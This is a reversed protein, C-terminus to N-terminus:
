DLRAAAIPEGCAVCRGWTGREIRQLAATIRALEQRESEGLTELVAATTREAAVDEWDPEPTDLLEDAGRLNTDRRRLLDDRRAVLVRRARQMRKEMLRKEM